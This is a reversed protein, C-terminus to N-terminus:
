EEDESNEEGRLTRSYDGPNREAKLRSHYIVPAKPEASADM